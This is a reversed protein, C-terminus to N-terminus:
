NLHADMRDNKNNFDKGFSFSNRLAKWEVFFDPKFTRFDDRPLHYLLDPFKGTPEVLGTPGFREM